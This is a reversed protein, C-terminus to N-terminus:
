STWFWGNSKPQKKVSTQEPQIDDWGVVNRPLTEISEETEERGDAFRKKLVRKTTVSGDPAVHRETTTLTSLISSKSPQLAEPDARQEAASTHPPRGDGASTMGGFHREYLEMETEPGSGAEEAQTAPQTPSPPEEVQVVPHQHSTSGITIRGRRGNKDDKLLPVVRNLWEVGSSKTNREVEANDTMPKGDQAKLLDEFRQRWSADFGEEHELHLPSYENHLLYGIASEEPLLPKMGLSFMTSLPGSFPVDPGFLGQHEWLRSDREVQHQFHRTWKEADGLWRELNHHLKGITDDIDRAIPDHHRDDKGTDHVYGENEQHPQGTEADFGDQRFRKYLWKAQEENRTMESMIEAIWDAEKAQDDKAKRAEKSVDRQWRCSREERRQPSEEVDETRDRYM